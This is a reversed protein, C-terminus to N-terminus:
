VQKYQEEKRSSTLVSYDVKYVIPYVAIVMIVATIVDFMSHQKIFITSLCISLMLIFSGPVAWKSQKLRSNKQIAIHCCISNYVHISPFINTSTDTKYIFKVMDVFINDRTFSVPRLHHGNPYVTSVILFVTMGIFLFACIKYYESKNTLLFYLITIAIYLFWLLYPIIFYEIFPIKDDIEMHIIHYHNTVKKEVYIFWPLYIFLYLLVWAHKYKHFLTKWM